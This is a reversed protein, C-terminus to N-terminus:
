MLIKRREPDYAAGDIRMACSRQGFAEVEFSNRAALESPLYGLVLSKGVSYGFNGSTTQGAPVGDVLIAEGGFVALPEDLALCVLKRAPGDAKIRALAEAGLFDSKSWDILFELGAEIPNDGPTIDAGWALYRKELRL